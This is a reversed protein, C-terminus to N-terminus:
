PAPAGADAGEAAAAAAASVAPDGGAAAGGPDYRDGQPPKGAVHTDRISLIFAVTAQAGLQGGWAPMGKAAVGERATRYIQEPAGGHIWFEDTLNPGIKGEGRDGHCVICNTRFLARGEAVADADHSLAVLAEASIGAGSREAAAAQEAAFQEHVGPEVEYGHYYFWYGVAFAIARFVTALWWKPLRNDAELIDGYRHVIEGQIPDRETEDSM